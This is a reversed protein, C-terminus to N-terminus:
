TNVRSIMNGEMWIKGWKELNEATAVRHGWRDTVLNKELGWSRIGCPAIAGVGNKQEEERCRAM